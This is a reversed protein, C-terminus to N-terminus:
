PDVARRRQLQKAEDVQWQHQRREDSHAGVRQQQRPVLVQVREKKEGVVLARRQAHGEAAKERGVIRRPLQQHRRTQDVRQRRRRDVVRELAVHDAAERSARDLALARPFCMADTDKRLTSFLKPEVLIMWPMPKSMASPSNVTSTPGEPQPLDVSSRMSAPNSSMVAPLMAMSSRTTFSRSDLSRSMAM